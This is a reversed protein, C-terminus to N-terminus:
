YYWAVVELAYVKQPCWHSCLVRGFFRIWGCGSSLFLDTGSSRRDSLTWQDGFSINSAYSRCFMM